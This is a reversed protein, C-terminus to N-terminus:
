AADSSKDKLRKLSREIYKETPLLSQQIRKAYYISDLVEKQKEEVLKKQESIIVNAKQKQRYGRFIFAALIGVLVFGIIFYNREKEKQKLEEKALADKKEQEAKTSAEKKEFDFNMEKRVLQNKNEESFISDRVEIYKKFYFLSRLRMEEKNLIKGGLTDKLSATSKRYLTSLQEYNYRVLDKAGISDSIELADYLYKFADDYKELSTYLSGMNGLHISIANKNELEQAIKLAKQFNELAEAYADDAFTKEGQESLLDAQKHRVGGINGLDYSIRNKNGIEEDLKLAKLYYDLARAYTRGAKLADSKRYSEAQNFYAVGINGLRIATGNSNGLEQDIKLARLYYNLAKEYDAQEDYVIGINGLRTAMGKKGALALTKDSSGRLKEDIKLAKLYYELAKAYDAQNRYVIGINGLHSAIRKKNNLEEDVQMAKFYYELAKEYEGKVYHIAGLNGLSSAVGTKGALAVKKDASDGIKEALSLAETSVLVASDPNNYKLQWGLENLVNVKNTDEPLKKLLLLLSDVADTLPYTVLQQGVTSTQISKDGANQDTCGAFPLLLIFLFISRKKM